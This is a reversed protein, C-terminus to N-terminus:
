AFCIHLLNYVWDYSNLRRSYQGFGKHNLRKNANSTTLIGVYGGLTLTWCLGSIWCEQNKDFYIKLFAMGVFGTIIRTRCSQITVSLWGYLATCLRNPCPRRSCNWPRRRVVHVASDSPIPLPPCATCLRWPSRPTSADWLGVFGAHTAFRVMWVGPSGVLAAPLWAPPPRGLRLMLVRLGPLPYTM